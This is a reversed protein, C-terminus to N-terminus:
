ARSVERFHALCYEQESALDLVTAKAGCPVGDCAGYSSEPSEYRCPFLEARALIQDTWALARDGLLQSFELLSLVALTPHAM